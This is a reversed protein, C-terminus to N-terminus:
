GGCDGIRHASQAETMTMNKGGMTMAIRGRYGDPALTFTAKARAANGGPCVIDFRLRDGDRRSNYSPCGALPNNASLVKPAFEEGVCVRVAQAAGGSVHPLELVVQVEYAGPVPGAAACLLLGAVWIRM